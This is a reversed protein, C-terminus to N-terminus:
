SFVNDTDKEAQQQRAASKKEKRVDGKGGRPMRIEVNRKIPFRRRTAHHERVTEVLANGGPAGHLPPPPVPNLFPFRIKAGSWFPPVGSVRGNQQGTDFKGM